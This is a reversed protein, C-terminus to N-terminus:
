KKGAKKPYYGRKTRAVLGPKSVRVEVKRYKSDRKQNTSYYGISYQSALERAVQEFASALDDTRSTDFVMGGTEQALEKLYRYGSGTSGYVGGVGGRGSPYPSPYGGGIIPPVGLGGTTTRGRGTYADMSTDYYVSYITANSERALEITDKESAKRSRTDEGDTFLVMAKRETIPKLVDALGLWVAEYLVTWGGTRTEKIGYANRDRDISFDELLRVDESFSLVAVSDDPHLQNVFDIASNQMRALKQETSGSTDILLAITVPEDTPSFGAIEQQIGDEFVAFDSKQLDTIRRGERTTVVVPLSVMDVEVRIAQDSAAPAKKDGQSKPSQAPHAIAWAALGLLLLLLCKSPRM